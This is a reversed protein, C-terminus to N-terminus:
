LQFRGPIWMCYATFTKTLCTRHRYVTKEMRLSQLDCFGCIKPRVFQEGPMTASPLKCSLYRVPMSRLVPLGPIPVNSSVHPVPFFKVVGSAMTLVACVSEKSMKVPLSVVAPSTSPKKFAGSLSCSRGITNLSYQVVHPFGDWSFIHSITSAILPLPNLYKTM